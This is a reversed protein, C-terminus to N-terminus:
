RSNNIKDLERAAEIWKPTTLFASFLLVATLLGLAPSNKKVAYYIFIAISVYLMLIIVSLAAFTYM